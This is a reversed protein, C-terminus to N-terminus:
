WFVKIPYCHSPKVARSTSRFSARFWTFGNTKPTTSTGTFSVRSSGLRLMRIDYDDNISAM